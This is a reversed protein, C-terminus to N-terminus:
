VTELLPLVVFPFLLPVYMWAAHRYYIDCIFKATTKNPFKSMIASRITELSRAPPTAFPFNYSLWSLDTPMPVPSDDATM